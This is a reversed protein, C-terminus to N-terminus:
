EQLRHDVRRVLRDPRGGRQRRLRLQGREDLVELALEVDAVVVHVREGRHDAAGVGMGVGVERSVDRDGGNRRLHVLEDRHLEVDAHEEHLRVALHREGVRKARRAPHAVGGGVRDRAEVLELVKHPPQLLLRQQELRVGRLCAGKRGVEVAMWECGYSGAAGM